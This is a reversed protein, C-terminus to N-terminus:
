HGKILGIIQKLITSINKQIPKNIQEGYIKEADKMSCKQENQIFSCAADKWKKEFPNETEVYEDIKKM